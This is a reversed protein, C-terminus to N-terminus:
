SITPGMMRSYPSTVSSSRLSIGSERDTGKLDGVVQDIVEDQRPLGWAKIVAYIFWIADVTTACLFFGFHADKGAWTGTVLATSLSALIGLPAVWDNALSRTRMRKTLVVRLTSELVTISNEPRPPLVTIEQVRHAVYVGLRVSDERQTGDAKAPESQM